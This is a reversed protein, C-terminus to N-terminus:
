GGFVIWAGIVNVAVALLPPLLTLFAKIPSPPVYQGDRITVGGPLADVVYNRDPNKPDYLVQEFEEDELRFGVHSKAIATHKMGNVEFEFTYKIVPQNNIRTNTPSKDILRGPALKAHALLASRRVGERLGFFLLVLGIAPFLGVLLLVWGPAPSTREGVIRSVAPNDARYEIPAPMGTNFKSGLTYGVGRRVIGSADRFEYDVAYVPTGPRDDDGGESYNTASVLTVVGTAQLLEGHFRWLSSVDALPTLAWVSIMSFGFWLWGFTQLFGGFLAVVRVGAPVGREAPGASESSRRNYKDLNSM